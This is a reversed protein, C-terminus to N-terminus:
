YSKAQMQRRQQHDWYMATPEYRILPDFSVLYGLYPIKIQPLGWFNLIENIVIGHTVIWIVEQDGKIYTCHYRLIRQQFCSYSEPHPPNHMATEITVDLSKDSHNGLYESLDRECKVAISRSKAAVVEALILATQRARLYPSTIIRTPVSYYQLLKEALKRTERKGRETLPPDHNPNNSPARGNRYAKQAHRIYIRM